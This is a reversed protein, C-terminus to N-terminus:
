FWTVGELYKKGPYYNNWEEPTMYHKYLEEPFIIKWANGIMDYLGLENPEKLGVPHTRGGSNSGVWAIKDLDITDINRLHDAALIRWQAETPIRYCTQERCEPNLWLRPADLYDFIYPMPLGHQYNLWNVYHVLNAPIDAYTTWKFPPIVRILVVPLNPETWGNNDPFDKKRDRCYAKIKERTILFKAATVNGKKDRENEPLTNRLEQEVNPPLSVMEPYEYLPNRHEILRPGSVVLEDIIPVRIDLM